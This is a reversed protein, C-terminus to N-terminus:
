QNNQASPSFGFFKKYVKSFYLPDEYGVAFAAAKVQQGENLMKQAHKMRCATQFAHISLGTRARFLRYLYCQSFGTWMTLDEISIKEAFHTEIYSKVAELSQLHKEVVTPRLAHPTKSRTQERKAMALVVLLNDRLSDFDSDSLARGTRLRNRIDKISPVQVGFNDRTRWGEEADYGCWFGMVSFDSLTLWLMRYSQKESVRGECHSQGPPIVVMQGARLLWLTDYLQLFVEGEMCLCIEVHPHSYEYPEFYDVLAKQGSKKFHRDNSGDDYRVDKPKM